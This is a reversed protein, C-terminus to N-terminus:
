NLIYIYIILYTLEFRNVYFSEWDDDNDEPSRILSPGLFKNTRGYAFAPIIHAGRIVNAPDLFGFSPSDQMDGIFGVRNLRLAKWGSKHGPEIGLWRIWLFEMRHPSLGRSHPGSHIVWAHFVGLVQAYWYPHADNSNQNDHAMLMVFCRPTTPNITDQARRVDYTTYNIRLVKHTYIKNDKFFVSARDSDSFEHEDGDYAINLLRALLHDHLM